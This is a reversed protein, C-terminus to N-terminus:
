PRGGAAGSRRDCRCAARAPRAARARGAARGGAAAAGARIGGRSGAGGRAPCAPGRGTARRWWRLTRRGERRDSGARRRGRRDRGRQGQDGAADRRRPLPDRHRGQRHVGRAAGRRRRGRRRGAQALPHRHRRDGVRGPGAPDGVHDQRRRVLRRRWRLGAGARGAAGASAAGARQEAAPQEPQSPQEPEEAQEEAQADGQDEPGSGPRGGPRRGPRGSPRGGPRRGPRRGHVRGRDGILALVAGVEVTEDEDAKIELLTGAVPSPIETDVKDTSVELLAEDVSVSDGVQKLWRTVTGETVSEGLAPLTVETAM